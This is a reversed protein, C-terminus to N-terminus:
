FKKEGAKVNNEAELIVSNPLKSPGAFLAATIPSIVTCTRAKLFVIDIRLVFVDIFPYERYM